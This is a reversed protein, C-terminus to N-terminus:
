GQTGYYEDLRLLTHLLVNAGRVCHELSTYEDASHSIGGRSPVFIMGMDAIRGLEQADHSARSPLSMYSLRLAECVQEIRDEIESTAPTSHVRLIPEMTIRVGRRDGIDQLKEKLDGVVEAITEDLIDRIDVTLEVLGPIINAANPFVQLAGVTAVPEGSHSRALEEVALVIRAGATLADQRMSMPTTGAHNATGMVKIRYRQQGVLGRVVGIDKNARDLVGGQEVHLEVFAAIDERSAQALKHWNGGLRAVAYAMSLNTKLQYDEPNLSATGAMAKCGIMTSEEDAFVITEIPRNLRIQNERLVRVVELGAVVGLAGDYKGGSPVTDLHSGTALVPLANNKGGHTGCMNGAADIRVSMGSAKMWRRVLARAARDEDSFALRCISGDPRKGIKALEELDRHLREASISLHSRHQWDAMGQIRSLLLPLLVM